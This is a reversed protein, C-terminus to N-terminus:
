SAALLPDNRPNYQDSLNTSFLKDIKQHIAPVTTNKWIDNLGAGRPMGIEYVPHFGDMLALVSNSVVLGVYKTTTHLVTPSLAVLLQRTIEVDAEGARAFVQLASILPNRRFGTSAEEARSEIRHRKMLQTFQAQMAQCQASTARQFMDTIIAPNVFLMTNRDVRFALPMMGGTEWSSFRPLEPPANLHYIKAMIHEFERRYSQMIQLHQETTCFSSRYHTSSYTGPTALAQSSPVLQRDFSLFSTAGFNGSPSPVPTAQFSSVWHTRGSLSQPSPEGRVSGPVSPMSFSHLDPTRFAPSTMSGNMPTIPPSFSQPLPPMSWALPPAPESSRPYYSVSFNPPLTPATSRHPIGRPVEPATFRNGREQLSSPLSPVKPSPVQYNPSLISPQSTRPVSPGSTDLSSGTRPPPVYGPLSPRTYTPPPIYGALSHGNSPPPVYGRLAPGTYTPPPSAILPQPQYPTINTNPGPSPRFITYNSPDQYPNPLTPQTNYSSPYSSSPVRNTSM